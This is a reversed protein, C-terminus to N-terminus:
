KEGGHQSSTLTLHRGGMWESVAKITCPEGCFIGEDDKVQDEPNFPMVIIFGDQSRRLKWWHNETKKVERCKPNDCVFQLILGMAKVREQM